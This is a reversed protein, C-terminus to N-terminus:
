ELVAELKEGEAQYPIGERQAIAAFNELSEGNLLAGVGSLLQLDGAYVLMLAFGALAEERTFRCHGYRDVPINLHDILLSGAAATKISYLFEHSYPVQQDRTTHMTILPRRLNGTTNYQTKMEAVAAPEARFRKVRWNLRFDNDSGRYWKWRNEFPFGGLTEAADQLNLVAYRLVDKASILATELCDEPDCPLKAVAKWQDFYGPNDRLLPEVWDEFYTNWADPAVATHDDNFIGYGPIENPFFYEFTVRADGLYNIQYPFDGIPGCLAYGASFVDPYEETLLTTILGGESAGVIYIKEPPDFDNERAYRTFIAVLDIIDATGEVVALGTKSYSNTAFAFGLGTVIDPICVDDFCLQDEPIGIETEADQFGHAWIVLRGNYREPPPVVICYQSGTDQIGFASCVLTDGIERNESWGIGSASIIASVVIATVAFSRTQLKRFLSNM